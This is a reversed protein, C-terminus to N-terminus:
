GKMKREGGFIFDRHFPYERLQGDGGQAIIIYLSMWRRKEPWPGGNTFNVAKHSSREKIKEKASGEREQSL